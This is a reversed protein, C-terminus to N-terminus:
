MKKAIEIYKYLDNPLKSENNAERKRGTRVIITNDKPLVIIYQGYLGQFHYFPEKNYSGMWFHMGYRKNQKKDKELAPNPKLAEQIYKKSVAVSGNAEGNNLILKGLKAYDRPIAYVCCFAKETGNEKDLSWFAPHEAGIKKWIKEEAYESVSKNSVKELILALLQTNGSMYDFTKGSKNIESQNLVLSQLDDGYYAKANDSFPNKGSEIWDLGSSMWLLHRITIDSNRYEPLYAGISNDLSSILAEDLAVGILLSIISKAMSFSNTPISQSFGNWYNEYVISDHKVVLFSATELEKLFAEDDKSLEYEVVRRNWIQPEDSPNIINTPFIDKDSIDPTTRGRLYTYKIGTFLYDNGTAYIITSALLIGVSLYLSIKKLRKM